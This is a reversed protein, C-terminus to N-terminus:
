THLCRSSTGALETLPEPKLFAESYPDVVAEGEGAGPAVAADVRARERLARSQKALAVARRFVEKRPAPAVKVCYLHLQRLKHTLCHIFAEADSLLV